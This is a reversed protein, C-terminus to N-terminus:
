GQSASWKRRGTDCPLESGDALVARFRVRYTGSGRNGGLKGRLTFRGRYTTTATASKYSFKRSVSFEGDRSLDINSHEFSNTHHNTSGCKAM